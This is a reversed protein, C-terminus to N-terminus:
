IEMEKIPNVPLAGCMAYLRDIAKEDAPSVIWYM